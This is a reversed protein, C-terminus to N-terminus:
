VADGTPNCLTELKGILSTSRESINQLLDNHKQRLEFYQNAINLAALILIIRKTINTSKSSLQDEARSVEQVLFDAVEKAQVADTEAKFTFPHGFLEITVLEDL